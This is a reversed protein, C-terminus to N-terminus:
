DNEMTSIAGNIKLTRRFEIPLDIEPPDDPNSPDIPPDGPKLLKLNVLSLQEPAGNNFPTITFAKIVYVGDQSILTNLETLPLQQTQPEKVNGDYSIASANIIVDQDGIRVQVYAASGPYLNHYKVATNLPVNTYTQDNNIELIEATAIPWIQIKKTALVQNTTGAYVTYIEEGMMFSNPNELADLRPSIGNGTTGDTLNFTKNETLLFTEAFVKGADGPYPAFTAPDYLKYSRVVKVQRVTLPDSPNASLNGVKVQVGYPQDFRTRPTGYTDRSSLTIEATPVMTGVSKSDLQLTQTQGNGDTFVSILRFVSTDADVPKSIVEGANGIVPLMYSVTAGNIVVDQLIFDQDAHLNTMSLAAFLASLIKTKM